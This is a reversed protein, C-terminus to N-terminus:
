RGSQRRLARAVGDLFRRNRAVVTPRLFGVLEYGHRSSAAGPEVSNSDGVFHLESDVDLWWYTATLSLPGQQYRAGLEEGEGKVLGPVPPRVPRSAARMTPITAAVGTPM